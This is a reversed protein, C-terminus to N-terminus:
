DNVSDFRRRPRAHRDDIGYSGCNDDDLTEIYEEMTVLEHPVLPTEKQETDHSTDDSSKTRDVPHNM